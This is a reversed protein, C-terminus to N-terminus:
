LGTVKAGIIKALRVGENIAGESLASGDTPLLIHRFM